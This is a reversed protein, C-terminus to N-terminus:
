DRLGGNPWSADRGDLRGCDGVQTSGSCYTISLPRNSSKCKLATIDGAASLPQAHAPSGAAM